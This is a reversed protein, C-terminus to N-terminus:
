KPEAADKKVPRVIFFAKEEDWSLIEALYPCEPSDANPELHCPLFEDGVHITLLGDEKSVEGVTGCLKHNLDKIRNPALINNIFMCIIKKWFFFHIFLLLIFFLVGVVTLLIWNRVPLYYLLVATFLIDSIFTLFDGAFFFIDLLLLLFGILLVAVPLPMGLFSTITCFM